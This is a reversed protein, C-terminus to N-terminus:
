EVDHEGQEYVRVFIHHGDEHFHGDNESSVKITKFSSAPGVFCYFMLTLIKCVYLIINVFNVLSGTIDDGSKQIPHFWQRMAQESSGNMRSFYDLYLLVNCGADESGATGIGLLAGCM